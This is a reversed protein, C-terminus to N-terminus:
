REYRLYMVFTWASFGAALLAFLLLQVMFPEPTHAFSLTRPAHPGAYLGVIRVFNPISASTIMHATACIWFAAMAGLATLFRINTEERSLPAFSPRRPETSYQRAQRRHEAADEDRALLAILSMVASSLLVAGLGGAGLLIMAPGMRAWGAPAARAWGLSLLAVLGCALALSFLAIVHRPRIADRAHWVFLLPLAVLVIGAAVLDGTEM